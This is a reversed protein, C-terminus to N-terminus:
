RIKKTDAEVDWQFHKPKDVFTLIRDFFGMIVSVTKSIFISPQVYVAMSFSKRQFERSQDKLVTADECGGWLKNM